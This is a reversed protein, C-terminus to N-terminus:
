VNYMHQLAAWLAAKRKPHQNLLSVADSRVITFSAMNLPTYDPLTVQLAMSAADPGLAIVKHFGLTHRWQGLPLVTNSALVVIATNDKHQQIAQILKEVTQQEAAQWQADQVVVLTETKDAPPWYWDAKEVSLYDPLHYLTDHQYM